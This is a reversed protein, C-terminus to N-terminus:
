RLGRPPPQDGSTVGRGPTVGAQGTMDRTGPGRIFLSLVSVVGAVIVNKETVFQLSRPAPFQIDVKM